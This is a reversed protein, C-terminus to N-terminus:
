FVLQTFDEYQHFSPITLLATSSLEPDALGQNYNYRCVAFPWIVGSVPRSTLDFAQWPIILEVAWHCGDDDDGVEVRKTAGSEPALLADWTIEGSQMKGRVPIYIDLIFDNPTVHIEWYESQDLGPKIFFEVVDGLTWMKQNDATATSFVDSDQFYTYFCLGAEAAGVYAHGSETPMAEAGRWFQKLPLRTCDRYKEPHQVGFDAIDGTVPMCPISM